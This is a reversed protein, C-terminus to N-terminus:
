EAFLDSFWSREEPPRFLLQRSQEDTLLRANQLDVSSGPGGRVDLTMLTRLHAARVERVVPPVLAAIASWISVGILLTRLSFQFWRRKRKPPDAITPETEMAANDAAVRRRLLSAHGGTLKLRLSLSKPERDGQKDRRPESM